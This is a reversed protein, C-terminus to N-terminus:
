YVIWAGLNPAIHVDASRLFFIHLICTMETKAGCRMYGNGSVRIRIGARDIISVTVSIRLGKECQCSCKGRTSM